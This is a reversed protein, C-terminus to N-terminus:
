WDAGSAFIYPADKQKSPGNPLGDHGRSGLLWRNRAGRENELDTGRKQDHKGCCEDKNVGLDVEGMRQCHLTAHAVDELGSEKRKLGFQM